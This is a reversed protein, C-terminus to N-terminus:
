PRIAKISNRTVYVVTAVGIGFTLNFSWRYFSTMKNNERILDLLDCQKEIQKLEMDYKQAYHGFHLRDLGNLVTSTLTGITLISLGIILSNSINTTTSELSRNNDIVKTIENLSTFTETYHAM